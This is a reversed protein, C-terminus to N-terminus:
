KRRFLTARSRRYRPHNEVIFGAEAAARETLVYQDASVHGSPEVVLLRGEPKVTRHLQTMLGLADPVEHVVYLALAFDIHGSLDEIGLNSEGCVRTEILGSLGAKAARRELSKIMGPQLDVCIVRGKDGVLRAMELSFFGMACGVDLAVMGPKVYDRLM